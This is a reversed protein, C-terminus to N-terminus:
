GILKNKITESLQVNSRTNNELVVMLKNAMESFEEKHEKADKRLTFFMLLFLALFVGSLGLQLVFDNLLTGM